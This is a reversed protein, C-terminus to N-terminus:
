FTGGYSLGAVQTLYNLVDMEEATMANEVPSRLVGSKDLKWGRGILYNLTIITDV